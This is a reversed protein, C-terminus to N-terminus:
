EGLFEKGVEFLTKEDGHRATMQLGLPLNKGEVASFGSPVTMAPMGTLNATVTFIDELYMAVPDSVKEGIKFAPAPTTPTVLIDVKEFAKLFDETLIRRVANARNYYADYYGSSLVYTGLLIRRRAEKGFGAGRTLFYDEIGDKGDRHLGFRMGDFRSLNSSVEAPMIVYYVALSFAINPLEVDVVEYGLKKLKELSANFSDLVDKKIGDGSLFHRPVGVIPKKGIRKPLYTTDSITTSDKIDKGQLANYVIETDTVTKGFPGIQDLSSGMAMAGYRSVRGYTPKLGVLGCFSAPQRISGGTDTGLAALAGNMALAAASGGSSGGAVRSTDHPNKTVGFASNETSGGMAFEDMNTRGIFVVGEKKLKSIVTADYTAHYKELIKSASSAIRGKILINDKIAFPIGTLLTVTGDKFREDAKKAQDLADKFVELYANIDSNKKSIEDLYAQTLEVASYAGAKMDEHAKKITLTALNIM